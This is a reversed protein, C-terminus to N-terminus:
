SIAVQALRAALLHALEHVCLAIGISGLEAQLGLRAALLPMLLLPLPLAFAIGFARFRIM